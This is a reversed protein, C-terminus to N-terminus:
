PTSDSVSEPEENTHAFQKDREPLIESEKSKRNAQLSYGQTTLMRAVTKHSVKRGQQRLTEALHETSKSTWRLPSM